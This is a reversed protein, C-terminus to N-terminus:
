TVTEHLPSQLPGMEFTVNLKCAANKAPFLRESQLKKALFDYAWRREKYLFSFM